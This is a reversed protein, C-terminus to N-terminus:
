DCCLELSTHICTMTLTLGGESASTSAPSGVPQHQLTQAAQSWLDSGIRVTIGHAFTDEPAQRCCRLLLLMVETTGPCSGWLKQKSWTALALVM